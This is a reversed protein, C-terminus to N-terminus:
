AREPKRVPSVVHKCNPHFIERRSLNGIYPYDGPADPVLKVIKGEWKACADKASHSSIVGYYVGRGVAENITSERHAEMMKTRVVMEAYVEPRWRRGSADIIGTKTASDLRKLIERTLSATGNVGKANKSRLVEATVQRITIRVKRDVNQTVKLLDDQTDAVIVKILERNLKNFKVINRAEEITPALGLSVLTYAVGDEAAKPLYVDTWSATNGNLETLIKKIEALTAVVQAREFDSTNLRLLEREIDRMAKEYYERLIAVDYDYNPTPIQKTM